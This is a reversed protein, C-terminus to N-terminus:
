YYNLARKPGPQPGRPARTVCCATLTVGSTITCYLADSNLDRAGRLTEPKVIFIAQGLHGPEDRKM